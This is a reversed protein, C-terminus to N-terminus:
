REKNGCSRSIGNTVPINVVFILEHYFSSFLLGIIRGGVTSSFLTHDDTEKKKEKKKKNTEFNKLYRSSPGSESSSPRFFSTQGQKIHM